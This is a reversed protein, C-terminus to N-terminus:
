FIPRKKKREEKRGRYFIDNDDNFIIEIWLKIKRM